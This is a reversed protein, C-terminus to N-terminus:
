RSCCGSLRVIWAPPAGSAPLPDGGKLLLPNFLAHLTPRVWVDKCITQPDAGLRRGAALFADCRDNAAGAMSALSFSVWMSDVGAM